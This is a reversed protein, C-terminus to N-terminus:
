PFNGPNALWALVHCHCLHIAPDFVGRHRDCWCSLVKGTLAPIRNLLQPQTMLWKAYSYVAQQRTTVRFQALTGSEHSFVNGWISPRGCYVDHPMNKHVVWTSRYEFPQRTPGVTTVLDPQRKGRRERRVVEAKWRNLVADERIAEDWDRLLRRRDPFIYVPVLM